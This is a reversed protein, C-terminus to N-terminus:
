ICGDVNKKTRKRLHEFIKGNWGGISSRVDSAALRFPLTEVIIREGGAIISIMEDFRKVLM